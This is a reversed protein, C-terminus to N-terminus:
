EQPRAPIHDPGRSPITREEAKRLLAKAVRRGPDVQIYAKKGMHMIQMEEAFETVPDLREELTNPAHFTEDDGQEGAHRPQRGVVQQALSVGGVRNQSNMVVTVEAVMTKMWRPEIIQREQVVKEVVM